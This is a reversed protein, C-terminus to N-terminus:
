RHAILSRVRAALVADHQGSGEIRVRTVVEAFTEVLGPAFQTGSSERLIRLATEVQRGPRYPRASTIADFVDAVSLVRALPHLDEGAVGHPYGEGNWWEHHHAVITVIDQYGPVRSLLETGLRVHSRIIETEDPTLRGPKDLIRDPVGIKGIDHVLGARHLLEV